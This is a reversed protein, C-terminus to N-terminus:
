YKTQVGIFFSVQPRITTHIQDENWLITTSSSKPATQSHPLYLFIDSGLLIDIGPIIKDFEMGASAVPSLSYGSFYRQDVHGTYDSLSILTKHYNYTMGAGMFFRYSSNRFADYSFFPGVRFLYSTEAAIGNDSFTVINGLTGGSFILGFYYRNSKDFSVKKTAVIRFGKELSYTQKAIANAYDYSALPNSGLTFSISARGFEHDLFPYTAPIPEEIRYDTPDHDGISIPWQREQEDNTVIKIHHSRIYAVTGTRDYTPLFEPLAHTLDVMPPIYIRDGKRVNQLVTANDDPSKHLTAQLVIVVAEYSSALSSFFFLILFLVKKM